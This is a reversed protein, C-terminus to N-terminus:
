LNPVVYNRMAYIELGTGRVQFIARELENSLANTLAPTVAQVFVEKNFVETTDGKTTSTVLVATVIVKWKGPSVSQPASIDQFILVRQGNGRFIDQPTRTALLKLFEVSFDPVLARSALAAVTPVKLQGKETQVNFGPDLAPQVKIDVQPLRPSASMLLMLNNQVFSQIVAPTREKSDLPATAITKGAELQVLSPAPKNALKLFAGLMLFQTVLSTLGICFSAIVMMGLTNRTDRSSSISSLSKVM